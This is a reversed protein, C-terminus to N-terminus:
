PKNAGGRTVLRIFDPWGDPFEVPGWRLPTMSSVQWVGNDDKDMAVDWVMRPRFADDKGRVRVDVQVRAFRGGQAVNGDVKIVNVSPSPVHAFLFKAWKSMEARGMEKIGFRPSLHRFLAEEDGAEVAAAMDEVVMEIRELETIVLWDAVLALIGVLVFGVVCYMKRRTVIM